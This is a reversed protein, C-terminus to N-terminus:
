FDTWQGGDCAINGTRTDDVTQAFFVCMEIGFTLDSATDNRWACHVKIQDGKNFHKAADPAVEMTPPHFTYEPSWPNTDFLRETAGTGDTHDVTIETGYAHMHPIWYWAKIDKQMTCNIDVTPEGPPLHLNTDVIALAGSPIVNTDNPDAFQINVASQVDHPTPSANIYHHNIMIQYGAEITFALNGPAENYQKVGEGGAGAVFRLTATDADTCKRTTGGPQYTKTKYVVIHHGAASQIGQVGKVWLDKDVITDTWTCLENDTGPQIDKIVPLIIQMGNTPVPGPDILMGNGNSGGGGSCGAAVSVLAILLNRM